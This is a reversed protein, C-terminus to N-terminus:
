WPHVVGGKDDRGFRMTTSHVQQKKEIGDSRVAVLLRWWGGSTMGVSASPGATRGPEWM